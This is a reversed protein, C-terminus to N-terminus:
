AMRSRSPWTAPDSLIGPRSASSGLNKRGPTLVRLLLLGFALGVAFRPEPVNCIRSLTHDTAGVEAATVLIHQDNSYISQPVYSSMLRISASPVDVPHSTVFAGTSLDVEHVAGSSGGVFLKQGDRGIVMPRTDSIDPPELSWALSASTGDDRIAWIEGFIDIAVVLDDNAGGLDPLGAGFGGPFATQGGASLPGVALTWLLDGTDAHFASIDGYLGITYVRNDRLLPPQQLVGSNASWIRTGDLLDISWITHQATSDRQDTGFFLRDNPLDLSMGLIADVLQPGFADNFTWSLGGTTTDVLYVNNGTFNSCGRATGAIVVDGPHAARFSSSAQDRLVVIPEALVSDASCSGSFDRSWIKENTELSMQEVVGGSKAFFLTENGNDLRGPPALSLVLALASYSTGIPALTELDYRQVSSGSSIALDHARGEVTWGDPRAKHSLSTGGPIVAAAPTCANSLQASTPTSALFLLCAFAKLHWTTRHTITEPM